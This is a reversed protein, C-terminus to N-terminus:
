ENTTIEVRRIEELTQTVKAKDNWDDINLFRLSSRSM